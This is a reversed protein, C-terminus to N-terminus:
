QRLELVHVAVSDIEEPSLITKYSAMMKRGNTVVQIIEAENLTSASLDFAGNLGLKGNSGHCTVCYKKFTKAGASMPKATTGTGSNDTGCSTYVLLALVICFFSLIHAPRLMGCLYDVCCLLTAKEPLKIAM